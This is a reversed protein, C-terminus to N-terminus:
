SESYDLTSKWRAATSAADTFQMVRSTDAKLAELEKEVDACRAATVKLLSQSEQLEAATSKLERLARSNPTVVPAAPENTLALQSQYGAPLRLGERAEHVIALLAAIGHKCLQPASRSRLADPCDCAAEYARGATVRVM